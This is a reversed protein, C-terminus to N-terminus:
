GGEKAKKGKVIQDKKAEGREKSGKITKGRKAEGKERAAKKGGYDKKM